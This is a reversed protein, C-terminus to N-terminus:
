VECEGSWVGCAGCVESKVSWVECEMECKAGQVGCQVSWVRCKVSEM